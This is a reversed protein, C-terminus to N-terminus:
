AVRGLEPEFERRMRRYVADLEMSRAVCSTPTRAPFHPREGNEVEDLQAHYAAFQFTRIGVPVREM